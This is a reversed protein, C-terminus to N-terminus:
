HPAEGEQPSSSPPHVNLRSHSGVIVVMNRNSQEAVSVRSAAAADPLLRLGNADFARDNHEEGLGDSVVTVTANHNRGCTSLSGM